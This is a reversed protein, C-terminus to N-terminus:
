MTEYNWAHTGSFQFLCAGQSGFHRRGLVSPGVHPLFLTPSTFTLFNSFCLSPWAVLPFTIKNNIQNPSLTSTSSIIGFAWITNKWCSSVSVKFSSIYFQKPGCLRCTGDSARCTLMAATRPERGAGAPIGSFAAETDCIGPAM